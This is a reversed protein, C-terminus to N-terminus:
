LPVSAIVKTWLFDNKRWQVCALSRSILRQTEFNWLPIKDFYTHIYIQPKLARWCRLDNAGMIFSSQHHYHHGFSIRPGQTGLVERCKDSLHPFVGFFGWRPFKDRGPISGPGAVHCSRMSGAPGCRHIRILTNDIYINYHFQKYPM